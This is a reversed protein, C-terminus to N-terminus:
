SSATTADAFFFGLESAVRAGHLQPGLHGAGPVERVQADPFRAMLSSVTDLYFPHTQTGHLLLVPMALREPTTPDALHPPGSQRIHRVVTWVNPALGEYVGAAEVAALEEDNARALHEMFIRAADVTRDQDVAIAARTTADDFRARDDDSIDTFDAPEYVALARVHDTRDAAEIAVIGGSSHGFLGAPEDLSDIYAAVDEAYREAAHDDAPGSLGRARPSMCHCTFSSSLHPLLGRWTQEGDAPGGPVLVIPPGQGIVRGVIETGDASITRHLTDTTM